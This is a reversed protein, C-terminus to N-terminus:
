SLLLGYFKEDCLSILDGHQLRYSNGKGILKGNVFTGFQSTDLLYTIDEINDRKFCCHKRSIANKIRRKRLEDFNYGENLNASRGLEFSAASLEIVELDRAMPYLIAYIEHKNEGAVDNQLLSSFENNKEILPIEDHNESRKEDDM